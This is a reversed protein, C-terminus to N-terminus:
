IGRRMSRLLPLANSKGAVKSATMTMAPQPRFSKLLSGRGGMGASTLM